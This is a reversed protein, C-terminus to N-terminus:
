DDGNPHCDYCAYSNYVYGDVESHKQNMKNQNHTHCNFCSFQTYNSPNIHCISCNDWKNRHNGSYIPFYDTDHNFTSPTWGPGTDHCLECDQPFQNNLHNPDIATNYDVLHCRVCENSTNSYGSSHCQNCDNQILSHGGTLPYVSSHNFITPTWGSDTTHCITCNTSFQEVIHSPDTTSNYNSLHCSSCTTPTNTYGSSHCLICSDKVLNHGGTLPYVAAHNFTNPTWGPNTNHCTQCSKPFLNNVHNPDSTSNYDNIHCDQCETSTNLYGRSHCKICDSSILNHGGILPFVTNHDFITPTWGPTTTHCKECNQPFQNTLHKPDISSNYDGIHCDNCNTPTNTYGDSHCNACDSKVLDHGGTLAYVSSHNFISPSWGPNTSHCQDCDQPFQNTLHNPEITNNYDALHCEECDTPTSIYGDVHCKNCDTKILGHGGTLPYILSHNISAPTWDPNTTHCEQCDTAFQNEIHNPNSTSNYDNIHCNACDTGINTFGGSHCLNCDDQVFSHGGTLPYITNHDLITPQWGPNTNHCEECNTSFQEILHNPDTASGYDTSHCNFCDDTTSNYGNAHCQSCDNKVLSHGGILPYFINHNINVPYWGTNTSHCEQCDQSFNLNIHHPNSTAIYDPSHCSYCDKNTNTYGTSHCLQCDNVLSVHAGTLVYFNDHNINVPYWGPNTSHCEQCDQSFNLNVHHPDSIATYDTQHCSYCDSNINKFNNDTHCEMCILSNHGGILPFISHENYSLDWSYSTISHCEECQLSINNILHNPFQTNMYDVSHCSFCDVDLPPFDVTPYSIHCEECGANRHPGILPFRTSQHIEIGNNIEWSITTHCTKCEQGNNGMHFDTHCNTCSTIESYYEHKSHCENCDTQSWLKNPESGDDTFIYGHCKSCDAIFNTHLEHSFDTSTRKWYDSFSLADDPNTHCKECDEDATDGDHCNLCMDMDPFSSWSIKETSNVGEHCEECNSEAEEIHFSHNFIIRDDQSGFLNNLSLFLFLVIIIQFRSRM